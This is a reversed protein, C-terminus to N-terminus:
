GSWALGALNNIESIAILLPYNNNQYIKDHVGPRRAMSTLLWELCVMMLVKLMVTSSLDNKKNACVLGSFALSCMAATLSTVPLPLLM